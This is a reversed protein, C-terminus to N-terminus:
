GGLRWRGKTLRGVVLQNSRVVIVLAVIVAFMAMAYLLPLWQWDPFAVWGNWSILNNVCGGGDTTLVATSPCAGVGQSPFTLALLALVGLLVGALGWSRRGSRHTDGDM